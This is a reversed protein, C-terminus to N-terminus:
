SSRKTKTKLELRMIPRPPTRHAVVRFGAHKFTSVFGTSSASPSLSRDIPYAELAGAGASKAVKQAANILAGTIGRRRYGKRVYFCSISWVPRNDIRMWSRDLWPLADRPTLQCWGVALKGDFAILGPPPGKAVVRHFEAKNIADAQKRYGAGIRWYMCWCGNCAGRKGFLDELAPWLEPTLPRIRVKTVLQSSKSNSKLKRSLNFGQHSFVVEGGADKRRAIVPIPARAV